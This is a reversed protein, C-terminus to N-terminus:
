CGRTGLQTGRGAALRFWASARALTHTLSEGALSNEHAEKRRPHEHRPDGARMQGAPLWVLEKGITLVASESGEAFFPTEDLGTSFPLQHTRRDRAWSFGLVYRGDPDNDRAREYAKSYHTGNTRLRGRLQEDLAM